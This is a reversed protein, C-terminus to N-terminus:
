DHESLGILQIKLIKRLSSEPHLMSDIIEYWYKANNSHENDVADNFSKMAELYTITRTEEMGMVDKLIEEVTWGQCGYVTNALENRQIKGTEDTYLAIIESPEAVQVIHPSHTTTFIQAKPLIEKIALYIKAQWDPHLHLDIEDIFIVGTFEKVFLSPESFRVEVEKVLGILVSIASKYGSSLYEFYIEGKPTNLLIDNTKHNIRSYTIEKNLISFCEKALDLNQLEIDNLIGLTGSWFVSRVFWNKIEQSSTGNVVEESYVNVNKTENQSIAHLNQYVIDRHTRFVIIQNNNELLGANNYQEDPRFLKTEVTKDFPVNNSTGTLKWFGQETGATKKVSAKGNTFTQAICDLITTKGIGNGGCIINFHSHFHLTLDTIPGINSIQLETLNLM